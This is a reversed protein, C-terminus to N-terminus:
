SKQLSDIYILFDMDGPSHGFQTLMVAVESRHQMAHNNQHLLMQWIPFANPQGRSNVYHIVQALTAEDLTEIYAQTTAEIQAWHQRITLMDDVQDFEVNPLLPLERCRCIWNREVNMVHVLTDRVSDFSAGVKATFQTPLLREAFTLIRDNAWRNYAYYTHILELAVM